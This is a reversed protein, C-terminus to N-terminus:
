FHVSSEKDYGTIIINRKNNHFLEPDKFYLDPFFVLFM